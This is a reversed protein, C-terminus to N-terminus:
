QGYLLTITLVLYIDYRCTMLYEITKDRYSHIVIRFQFKLHLKLIWYPWYKEGWFVDFNYQSFKGSRQSGWSVAWKWCCSWHWTCSCIQRRKKTLCITWEKWRCEINVHFFIWYNKSLHCSELPVRYIFIYFDFPQLYRSQKMQHNKWTIPLSLM